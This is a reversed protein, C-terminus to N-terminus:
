RQYLSLGLEYPIEPRSKIIQINSKNCYKSCSVKNFNNSYSVKQFESLQFAIQSKMNKADVLQEIKEDAKWKKIPNTRWSSMPTKFIMRFGM